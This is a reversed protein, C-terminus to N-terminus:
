YVGWGVAIGMSFDRVIFHASVLGPLEMVDFAVYCNNAM